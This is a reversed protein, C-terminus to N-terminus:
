GEVAICYRAGKAITEGGLRYSYSEWLSDCNIKHTYRNTVTIENNEEPMKVQVCVGLNEHVHGM